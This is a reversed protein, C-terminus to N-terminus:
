GSTEISLAKIEGLMQTEADGFTEDKKAEVVVFFPKVAAEKGTALMEKHIDISSKGYPHATVYDLQGSLKANNELTAEIVHETFVTLFPDEAL